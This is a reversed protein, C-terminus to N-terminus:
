HHLRRGEVDKVSYIQVFVSQYPAIALHNRRCILFRNEKPPAPEFGAPTSTRKTVERDYTIAFDTRRAARHAPAQLVLQLSRRKSEVDRCEVRQRGLALVTNSRKRLGSRWSEDRQALEVLKEARYRVTWIRSPQGTMM